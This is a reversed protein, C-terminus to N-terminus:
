ITINSMGNQQRSEFCLCCKDDRIFFFSTVNGRIVHKSM